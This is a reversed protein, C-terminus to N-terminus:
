SSEEEQSLSVNRKRKGSKPAPSAEVEEDDTFQFDEVNLVDGEDAGAEAADADVEEAASEPDMPRIRDAAAKAAATKVV